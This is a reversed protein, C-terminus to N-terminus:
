GSGDLADLEALSAGSSRHGRVIVAVLALFVVLGVGFLSFALTLSPPSVQVTCTAAWRPDGSEALAIRYVYEGSPRGSVTTADDVGQYLPTENEEVRVPRGHAGSWAIRYAGTDSPRSPCHLELAEV